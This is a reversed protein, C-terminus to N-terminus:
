GPTAGIGKQKALDLVTAIVDDLGLQSSDITIADPAAVLPAVKRNADRADRERLEKLLIVLNAPFGKEILQKHRRDARAAVDAVLFIKLVARPFVVTGMDRGDAVLGPLRCFARQRDLLAARLAPFPAIASALNGVREARIEETVDREDMFIRSAIFTPELALACAALEAEDDLDIGHREADLATLRYLAGSDLVHFGVADAVGHAVSGKGSATPGDITIVPAITDRTDPQM